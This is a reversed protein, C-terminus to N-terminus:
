HIHKPPGLVLTYSTNKTGDSFRFIYTGPLLEMDQTFTRWSGGAYYSICKGSDSHVQVTQFTVLPNTAVNQSIQQSGGAYSIHFKYTLPLLEMTTTTTGAGFTKWGGAYYQATATLETSGDSAILKMTVLTTQFVVNPNSATDQSLQQSVGGYSIQFTYTLPLLEMSTTTAGAGFRKWGGANYQAGGGNLVTAGDHALLKMTVLTTQFTVLPNAGVNQSMQQSAGAYSVQFTYTLPLLEMTTTTSGRGFTRWSGAYYRAGGSLQANTSSIFNMTVLTTQFVVTPNTLVNQSMQQSAGAYTIQFNYTGPPLAKSVTGGSGTTGFSKWAGSYYQVVGGSLGKGCSSLLKVTVTVSKPTVAVEFSGSASNGAKDKASCTVTTTGMPFTSGSAPTCTVPVSGDVVDSASATFKVVAGSASTAAVTMDSPLTLTPPTKDVVTVKFSASGTLGANDTITCTVTTSGLAFTSGSSPTCTPTMSGDVVDSASATFMVVAGSPGTASVTMDPPVTVVPPLPDQQVTVAFTGTATNGAQDTASCSVKTTGVPFTSGSAPTCSVPVSGDVLDLASASFTVVAGSSSTAEVTMDSPLTLTAPTRDVVTVNFSASGTVGASDTVSCSVTTSGLPFTSGSSPTCTPTLSGDSASATFTVVAGSPGTAEVTMDAPVTVVPGTKQQVTSFGATITGSGHITVTTSQASPDAFTISASDKTWSSFVYGTNGTAEINLTVGDDYWTTAAPQGNVTIAGGASPNVAFSVQWQTKWSATETIPGSMTVSHSKDMGNYGGTDSSSWGTFLYQSGAGGSVPSTVAFTAASGADYWGQGAPNGYSSAVTLYYQIQYNATYTTPSSPTTITHSQDGGDSWSTWVYQTGSDGSVPSNASVTHSSGPIWAFTQPSTYTTGDVVISGSPSANVVISVSDSESSTSSSTSSTTSSTTTTMQITSVTTSNSTMSTTTTTTTTNTVQQGITFTLDQENNGENLEAILNDPDVVWKATHTGAQATIPGVYWVQTEGSAISDPGGRGFDSDYYADIYYGSATASGLNKISAVILFQDGPAVQTVPTGPNSAEELWVSDVTLDPLSDAHVQRVSSALVPVLLVTLVTLFLLIRPLYGRSVL